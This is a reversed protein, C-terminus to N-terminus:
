RIGLLLHHAQLTSLLNSKIHIFGDVGATQLNEIIEKPYGAVLVQIKPNVAKIKRAIEPAMTAYEEDSSCIVVTEARSSIAADVGEEISAFGPNDIIEYGACGFFNTAFGARARLMALNGITLLFVAPQKNGQGVYKETAIRLEEIAKGARYQELKRYPTEKVPGPKPTKQIKDLMREQLNPYQTTGILVTKRQAYDMEKQNRSRVIEDQLFGSTICPIIGGRKEIEKFLGWAHFAISHTLNEIYYAGGAPDVIKDLYAEDKLILQQNRAIRRSFDNPTAYSIDFPQISISDANGLAASMGETTTRLMNVYPDYVTKNWSTTTAHIFLRLSEPKGPHYQGIMKSWLLRAARFKAMEMFYNPGIGLSLQIHPAISDVSFGKSTLGALYENALALSFGLEQVLTSGSDPFYHGNITLAKFNPLKKRITTLLYEAEELNHAWSVYFDGNVLLYGLPDFNISGHIKDGGSGRHNLEYIFLELTLPYSRSSLLHIGTKALDIDTLLRNIQKHTTIDKAILGVADAGKAIADLALKNAQEIDGTLIDQRIIWENNGKRAGRVFPPEDPLTNLYELGLLDESRYYPKVNFGEDTKWVLKKDYDAGKLDAKIKEEWAATTIPPFENFLESNQNNDM